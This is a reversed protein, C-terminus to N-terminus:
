LWLGVVFHKVLLIRNCFLAKLPRWGVNVVQEVFPQKTIVDPLVPLSDDNLATQIPSLRRM